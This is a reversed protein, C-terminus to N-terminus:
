ERAGTGQDPAAAPAAGRMKRILAAIGSVVLGAILASALHMLMGSGQVDPMMQAFAIELVGGWLLAM